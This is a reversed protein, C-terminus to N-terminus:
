IASRLEELEARRAAVDVISRDVVAARYADVAEAAEGHSRTRIELDQVAGNLHDLADNYFRGGTGGPVSRLAAGARELVETAASIEADHEHAVGEVWLLGTEALALRDEALAVQAEAESVALAHREALPARPAPPAAAPMGLKERIAALEIELPQPSEFTWVHQGTPAHHYLSDCRTWPEDHDCAALIVPERESWACVVVEETVIIEGTEDDRAHHYLTKDQKCPKTPDAGDEVHNCNPCRAGTTWTLTTPM